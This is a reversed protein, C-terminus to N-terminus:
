PIGWHSRRPHCVSPVGCDKQVCKVEIQTAVREERLLGVFRSELIYHPNYSSPHGPRHCALTQVKNVTQVQSTRQIGGVLIMKSWGAWSRSPRWQETRVERALQVISLKWTVSTARCSREEGRWQPGDPIGRLGM